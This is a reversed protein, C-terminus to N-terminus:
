CAPTTTSTASRRQGLGIDEGAGTDITLLATVQDVLGEDNGVTVDDDGDGTVFTTHGQVTKVVITDDGRGTSVHTTGTHTSEVTLTDDGSGLEINLAELNSYTIGGDFPRDAIFTDGGMGLGTLRTQTLTASDNSPSNGHFVNLTDVQVAEDVRTNLNLPAVTYTDGAVAVQGAPFGRQFTVQTGSVLPQYDVAFGRILKALKSTLKAVDDGALVTYSATEGDVNLSWVDGAVPPALLRLAAMTWRHGAIDSLLPTGSIVSTGRSASGDPAPGLSFGATFAAGNARRVILRSGGLVDIRTEVIYAAPVLAQLERAVRSPM